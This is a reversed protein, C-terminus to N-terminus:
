DGNSDNFQRIWGQSNFQNAQRFHLHLLKGYFHWCKKGSNLRTKRITINSMLRSSITHLQVQVENLALGKSYLVPIIALSFIKRETAFFLTENLRNRLLQFQLFSFWRWKRQFQTVIAISKFNFQIIHIFDVIWDFKSKVTLKQCCKECVIARLM